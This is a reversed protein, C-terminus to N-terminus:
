DIQHWVRVCFRKWILISCIENLSQENNSWTWTWRQRSEVFYKRPRGMLNWSSNSKPRFSKSTTELKVYTKGSKIKTERIATQLERGLLSTNIRIRSANKGTHKHKSQILAWVYMCSTECAWKLHLQTSKLDRWTRSHTTESLVTKQKIEESIPTYSM